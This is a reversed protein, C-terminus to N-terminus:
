NKIIKKLDKDTIKFNNNIWFSEIQKLKEGVEEGQPIGYNNILDDGTVALKPIEKDKFYNLQNVFNKDFKKSTYIKYNLIDIM